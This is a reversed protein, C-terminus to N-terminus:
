AEPRAVGQDLDLPMPLKDRWNLAILASARKRGRSKPVVAV